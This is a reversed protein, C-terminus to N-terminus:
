MWGPDEQTCSLTMLEQETTMVQSFLSVELKSCDGKLCNYLTIFDGRLRRKELSFL